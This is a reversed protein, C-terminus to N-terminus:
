LTVSFGWVVWSLNVKVFTTLQASSSMTTWPADSSGLREAGDESAKPVIAGPAAAVCTSARALEPAVKVRCRVESEGALPSVALNEAPETGAM